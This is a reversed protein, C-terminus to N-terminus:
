RLEKRALVRFILPWAFLFPHRLQRETPELRTGTHRELKWLAYPMWDGVTFASKLLQVVGVARAARRRLRRPRSLLGPAEDVVFADGEREFALRGERALAELVAGLAREYRQPHRRVLARVSADSETRLESAYTERFLACWLAESTTRLRGDPAPLLGLGRVVATTLATAATALVARRADDDRLYPAAFPQSFRAWIAPRIARPSAGRAFDRTSVVAAKARHGEHELYFVNPPLAANLWAMPRTGYAARYDDVVVYFDLVGEDTAQRLCSGYFLVAAVADGYRRRLEAAFGLSVAPAADGIEEELLRLLASDPGQSM